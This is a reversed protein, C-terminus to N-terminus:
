KFYLQYGMWANAALSLVCVTALVTLIFKIRKTMKNKKKSSKYTEVMAVTLNDHHGGTAAGEEDVKIVMSEVAGPLSATKSAIKIIEKEPFMGWIGDSCLMFRDGKEYPLEVVDVQLDTSHGLARTIINSNASLRAQEETLSGQRVLDFVMSHDFTRFVKKGDRLLYVRSDGVHAVVASYENILLATVTTGMGRLSPDEETAQFLSYNANVVAQRLIDVRNETGDCAALTTIIARAALTSALKGSPGGGMGDCVLVLLGLATDSTACTDQNESRGGQRTDACGMFPYITNITLM